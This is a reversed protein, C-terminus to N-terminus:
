SNLFTFHRQEHSTILKNNNNNNNNHNCNNNANANNLAARNVWVPEEVFDDQTAVHVQAPFDDVFHYCIAATEAKKVFLYLNTPKDHKDHKRNTAM